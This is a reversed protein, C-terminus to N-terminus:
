LEPPLEVRPLVEVGSGQKARSMVEDAAKDTTGERFVPPMGDAGAVSSASSAGPATDSADSKAADSTTKSEPPTNQDVVTRSKLEDDNLIREKEDAPSSKEVVSAYPVGKLAADYNDNPGQMASLKELVGGNPVYIEPSVATESESLTFCTSLNEGPACVQPTFASPPCGGGPIKCGLATGPQAMAVPRQPPPCRVFSPVPAAKAYEIAGCGGCPAPICGKSSSVVKVAQSNSTVGGGLRYVTAGAVSGRNLTAPYSETQCCGVTFLLAFASALTLTKKSIDLNEEGM